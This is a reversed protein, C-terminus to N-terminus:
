NTELIKIEVRQNKRRGWPTKNTAIPQTKGYGKYKIRYEPIGKNYLYEAVKKARETSLKDCYDDPPVGNTHGGIEIIVNPNEILFQYIEDLVPYSQPKIRSSDADFYLNEIKIKQGKAITNKNLRKLIKKRKLQKEKKNKPRQPTNGAKIESKKKKKIAKPKASKKIKNKKIKYQEQDNGAMAISNDTPEEIEVKTIEEDGPCPIEVIDGANDLLINGNYPTLVPTKYFAELMIYEYNRKPKFKFTYKKWDTHTVMDSEALLQTKKCLSTSGWIRLKVPTNFNVTIDEDPGIGSYYIDSRALHITFEYCKGAFMPSSLKQAIMEWSERKARTVMGVFTNGDQPAHHVSFFDTNSSHIDPPTENYFYMPACDHWGPLFFPKAGGGAPTSEFSPNRLKIVHGQTIGTALNILILATIFIIKKM